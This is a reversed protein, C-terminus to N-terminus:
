GWMRVFIPSGNGAASRNRAAFLSAAQRNAALTAEGRSLGIILFVAEFM